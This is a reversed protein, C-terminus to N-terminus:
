HQKTATSHIKAIGTFPLTSLGRSSGVNRKRDHYLDNGGLANVSNYNIIKLM